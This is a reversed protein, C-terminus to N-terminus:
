HTVSVYYHSSFTLGPNRLSLLHWLGKADRRYLSLMSLHKLAKEPYQPSLVFISLAGLLTWSNESVYCTGHDRAELLEHSLKSQYLSQSKTAVKRLSVRLRGYQGM